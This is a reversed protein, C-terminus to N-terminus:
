KRGHRKWKKNVVSRGTMTEQRPTEVKETGVTGMPDDQRRVTQGTRRNECGMRVNIWTSGDQYVQV